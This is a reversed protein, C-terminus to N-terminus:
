SYYYVAPILCEITQTLFTSLCSHIIEREMLSNTSEMYSSLSRACKRITLNKGLKQFPRLHVVYVHDKM